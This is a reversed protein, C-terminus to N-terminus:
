AGLCLNASILTQECSFCVVFYRKWDELCVGDQVKIIPLFSRMLCFLTVFVAYLMFILCYLPRAKFFEM